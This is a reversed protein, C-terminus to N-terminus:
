GWIHMVVQPDGVDTLLLEFLRDPLKFPLYADVGLVGIGMQIQTLNVPGFKLVPLPCDIMELGSQPEQIRREMRDINRKIISLLKARPDNPKFSEDLILESAGKISTLPTKLEHSVALLFESRLEDLKELQIRQEREINYLRANELSTAIQTSVASLL